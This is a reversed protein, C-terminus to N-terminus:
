KGTKILQLKFGMEKLASTIKLAKMPNDFYVPLNALWAAFAQDEPVDNAAQTPATTPTKPNRKRGGGSARATGTAERVQKAADIVAAKTGGVFDAPTKHEEVKEGDKIVEISIPISQDAALLLLNETIMKKGHASIAALEPQYLARFADVLAQATDFEPMTSIVERAINGYATLTGQELTAAEKIADVIATSRTITKIDIM